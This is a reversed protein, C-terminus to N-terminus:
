KRKKCLIISLIIFGVVICVGIIISAILVSNSDSSSNKNTAPINQLNSDSTTKICHWQTPGGSKQCVEGNNCDSDKACQVYMTDEIQCRGNVCSERAVQKDGYTFWAGGNSCEADTYCASVVPFLILIILLLMLGIIKKDM